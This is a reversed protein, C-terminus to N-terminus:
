KQTAEGVGFHYIKGALEAAALFRLVQNRADVSNEADVVIDTPVNYKM